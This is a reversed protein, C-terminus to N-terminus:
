REKNLENRLLNKEYNLNKIIKNLKKADSTGQGGFDAESYVSRGGDSQDSLRSSGM